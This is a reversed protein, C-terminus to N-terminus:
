KPTPQKNKRAKCLFLQTIIGKGAESPIDLLNQIYRKSSLQNGFHAHCTCRFYQDIDLIINTYHQIIAKRSFMKLVTPLEM